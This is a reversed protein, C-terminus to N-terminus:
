RTELREKLRGNEETLRKIWAEKSDRTKQQSRRNIARRKELKEAEPDILSLTSSRRNRILNLLSRSSSSSPTIATDQPM